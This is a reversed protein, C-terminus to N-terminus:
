PAHAIHADILSEGVLMHRLYLLAKALNLALQIGVDVENGIAAIEGTANEGGLHYLGVLRKFLYYLAVLSEILVGAEGVIDILCYVHLLHHVGVLRKDM